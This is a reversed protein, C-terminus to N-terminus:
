TAPCGASVQKTLTAALQYVILGNGAKYRIHATRLLGTRVTRNTGAVTSKIGCTTDLFTYCGSLGGCVGASKFRCLSIRCLSYLNGCHRVSTHSANCRHPQHWGYMRDPFAGGFMKMIKLIVNGCSIYLQRSAFAVQRYLVQLAIRGGSHCSILAFCRVQVRQRNHCINATGLDGLNAGSGESWGVCRQGEPCNASLLGTLQKQLFSVCWHMLTVDVITGYKLIDTVPLSGPVERTITFIKM